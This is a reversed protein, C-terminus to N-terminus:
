FSFLHVLEYLKPLSVEGKLIPLFQWNGRQNFMIKLEWMAYIGHKRFFVFYKKAFIM